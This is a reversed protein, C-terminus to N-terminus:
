PTEERGENAVAHAAEAAAQPELYRGGPRTPRLDEDLEYVVPMGTPVNLRSIDHESVGDLIKVM